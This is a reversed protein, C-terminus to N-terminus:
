GVVPFGREKGTRRRQSALRGHVAASSFPFFVPTPRFAGKTFYSPFGCAGTIGGLVIANMATLFAASDSQLNANQATIIEASSSNSTLAEPAGPWYSRPRGGRWTAGSRWSTVWAVSPPFAIGGAGGPAPTTDTAVAGSRKTLGPLPPKPGKPETKIPSM